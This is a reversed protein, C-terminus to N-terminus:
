DAWGPLSTTMKNYHEAYGTVEFVLKLGDRFDDYDFEKFDFINQGLSHSERNIYRCFAQFRNEQLEPKQVVNSLDARQVFNFFYEIINRMCNAILASPQSRDNVVVWYSHYDNQIEEYKMVNISSGNSNKSLRFLKQTEHRRKHNADALEYFFYLSHTFVFVQEFISSGFFEKKLLQGVNYVYIHSLSSVPDDIVAIKKKAVDSASRRGRCLECFYLFSIVMKEGESLSFFAADSSESRVIRYLIDSHKKISFDVIGLDALAHNINEVAEDTNVAQKQLSVIEDRKVRYEQRMAELEAKASAVIEKSALSDAFYSSIVSDYEWRMLAWFERKLSALENNINDLRKNHSSIDVNVLDIVKNFADVYGGTKLLSVSLSPSAKKVRMLELNESLAKELGLYCETLEALRDGVFSCSKYVDLSPLGAAEAGYQNLLGSISEVSDSYSRDFYREVQEVFFNTITRQQCFPCVSSQDGINKDIFGLGSRVWDSNKLENILGSVASDNSGVVVQGFIESGEIAEGSFSLKPLYQYKKATDGSIAEFDGKIQQVDKDPRSSGVPLKSVHDFLVEKRGKLGDFCYELIRDGGTYKKKIDWVKDCASERVGQLRKEEAEVVGKASDGKLRLEALEVEAAKIKEEIAKNEKSLSFIGRLGDAEFFNDQIFRQNYVLVEEDDGIDVSCGGYRDGSLDYLYNSLTSKGTGNLGYIINVKKDTELTVLSQYSAVGQICIRSIM